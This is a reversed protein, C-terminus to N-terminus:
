AYRRKLLAYFKETTDPKSDWNNKAIYNTKLFRSAEEFSTFRNLIEIAESYALNYGNFLDRVYLLKDNMTIGQKLDSIPPGTLQDTNSNLKEKEALQSSIKQNITFVETEKPKAIISPTSKVYLPEIDKIEPQKAEFDAPKSTETISIEAVKIVENDTDAKELVLNNNIESSQKEDEHKITVPMESVLTEPVPVPKIEEHVPLDYRAQQMLPEFFKPEKKGTTEPHVGKQLFIKSFIEIHDTLFRANAAFLELELDNLNNESLQLYEYQDALEKIITGIKNFIDKERM